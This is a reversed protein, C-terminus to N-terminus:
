DDEKFYEKEIDKIKEEYKLLQASKIFNMQDEFIKDLAEFKRFTMERLKASWMEAEAIDIIDTISGGLYRYPLPDHLFYAYQRRRKIITRLSGLNKDLAEDKIDDIDHDLLANIVINM